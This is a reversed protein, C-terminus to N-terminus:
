VWTSQMSSLYAINRSPQMERGLYKFLLFDPITALLLLLVILSSPMKVVCLIFEGSHGFGFIFFFLSVVKANM